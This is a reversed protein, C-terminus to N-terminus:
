MNKTQQLLKSPTPPQIDARRKLWLNEDILTRCFDQTTNHCVKHVMVCIHLFICRTTFRCEVRVYMSHQEPPSHIVFPRMCSVRSVIVDCHIAIVCVECRKERRVMERCWYIYYRLETLPLRIDILVLSTPYHRSLTCYIIHVGSVLGFM